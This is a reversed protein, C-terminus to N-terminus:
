AGVGAVHQADVDRRVLEEDAQGVERAVQQLRAV